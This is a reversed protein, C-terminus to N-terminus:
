DNEDINKQNKEEDIAVIRTHIEPIFHKIEPFNEMILDMTTSLIVYMAAVEISSVNNVELNHFPMQNDAGIIIENKIYRGSKLIEEKNQKNLEKYDIDYKEEM